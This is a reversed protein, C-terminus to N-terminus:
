RFLVFVTRVQNILREMEMELQRNLVYEDADEPHSVM